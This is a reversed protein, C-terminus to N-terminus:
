VKLRALLGRFHEVGFNILSSKYIYISISIHNIPSTLLNFTRQELLPDTLGVVAALTAQVQPYPQIGKYM